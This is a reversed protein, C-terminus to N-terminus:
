PLWPDRVIAPSVFISVVSNKEAEGRALSCRGSALWVFRAWYCVAIHLHRVPLSMAQRLRAGAAVRACYDVRVHMM